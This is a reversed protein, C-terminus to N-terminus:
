RAKSTRSTAKDADDYHMPALRQRLHWEVRYALVYV